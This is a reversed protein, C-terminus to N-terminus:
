CSSSRRFPQWDRIEGGAPSRMSPSLQTDASNGVHVTGRNNLVDYIGYLVARGLSDGLTM